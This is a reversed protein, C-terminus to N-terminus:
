YGMDIHQQPYIYGLMEFDIKYIKHYLQKIMFKPVQSFFKKEITTPDIHNVTGQSMNEHGYKFNHLKLKKKFKDV